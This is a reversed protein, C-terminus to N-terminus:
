CYNFFEVIKRTFHEASFNISQLQGLNSNELAVQSISIIIVRNIFHMWSSHCKQIHFLNDRFFHACIKTTKTTTTITPSFCFPFFFWFTTLLKLLILNRSKNLQHFQTAMRFWNAFFFLPLITKMETWRYVKYTYLCNLRSAKCWFISHMSTHCVM